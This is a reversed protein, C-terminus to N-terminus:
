CFLTQNFKKASISTRWSSRSKIIPFFIKKEYCKKFCRWASIPLFNLLHQAFESQFKAVQFNNGNKMWTIMWFYYSMNEFCLLLVFIDTNTRNIMISIFLTDCVHSIFLDLDLCRSLYLFIFLTETHHHKYTNLLVYAINSVWNKSFNLLM